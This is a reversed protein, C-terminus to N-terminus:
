KKSAKRRKIELIFFILFIILGLLWAALNIAIFPAINKMGVIKNNTLSFCTTLLGCLMAAGGASLFTLNMFQGYALSAKKRSKLFFISGVIIAILSLGFLVSCIIYGTMDLTIHMFIEFLKNILSILGGGLGAFLVVTSWSKTKIDKPEGRIGQRGQKASKIFEDIEKITEEKSKLLPLNNEFFFNKINQGVISYGEFSDYFKYKKTTKSGQKKISVYYELNNEPSVREVKVVKYEKAIFYEAVQKISDCADEPTDRNFKFNNIAVVERKLANHEQIDKIFKVTFVIIMVPSIVISVLVKIIIGLNPFKDNVYTFSPFIGGLILLVIGATKTSASVSLLIIGLLYMTILTAFAAIEIKFGKMARLNEKKACDVCVHHPAYLEYCEKCLPTNGCMDCYAIADRKPHYKCKGLLSHSQEEHHHEKHVEEEKLPCGCHICTKAKDSVQKGCEPCKILAM